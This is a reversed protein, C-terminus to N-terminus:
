RRQRKWEQFSRALLVPWAFVSVAAVGLVAYTGYLSRSVEAHAFTVLWACIAFAVFSVASYIAYKQAM